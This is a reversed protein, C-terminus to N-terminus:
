RLVRREYFSGPVSDQVTDAIRLGTAQWGTRAKDSRCYFMDFDTSERKRLFSPISTMNGIYIYIILRGADILSHAYNKLPTDTVSRNM